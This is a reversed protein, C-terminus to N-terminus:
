SVNYQNTNIKDLEDDARKAKIETDNQLVKDLHGVHVFLAAM